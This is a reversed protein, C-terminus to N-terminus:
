PTVGGTKTQAAPKPVSKLIMHALSGVSLVIGIMTMMLTHRAIEGTSLDPNGSRGFVLVFVMPVAIVLVSAIRVWFEARDATGCMECLLRMTIGKLYANVALGIALPISVEALFNIFQM